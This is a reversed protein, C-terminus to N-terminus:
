SAHNKDAAWSEAASSRMQSASGAAARAAAAARAQLKRRIAQGARQVLLALALLIAAAAGDLWFHNATVVVALTTMVPYGLALWRWRSRSVNVIVIAVLLAWGVHVSPMASLQDPNFGAVSGYVSQGYEVATDVMGDSLMRPPAVPIFQVLLAFGTFLVVTTRVRFYSDRYRVFLWILCGTLVAFHLGAYYLNWVAGVGTTGDNSLNQQETRTLGDPRTGSGPTVTEYYGSFGLAALTQMQWNTVKDLGGVYWNVWAGIQAQTLGTTGPKWNPDPNRDTLYYQRLATFSGQMVPARSSWIFMVNEGLTDFQRKNGSRFGEGLGVLLLLSFVGWAIGFMTLFSRLKHGWLTGLTQGFIDFILRV